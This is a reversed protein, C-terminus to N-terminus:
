WLETGVACRPLAQKLDAFAEASLLSCALKLSRLRPLARLAHLAAVDADCLPPTLRLGLGSLEACQALCALDRRDSRVDLTLKQLRPLRPLASLEIATGSAFV